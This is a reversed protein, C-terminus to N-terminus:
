AEIFVTFNGKVTKDQSVEDLAYFSFKKYPGVETDKVVVIDFVKGHIEKLLSLDSVMTLFGVKADEEPNFGISSQAAAEIFMALTPLIPFICRIKVSKDNHELVEKAFVLPAKHPLNM